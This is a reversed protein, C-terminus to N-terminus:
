MYSLIHSTEKEKKKQADCHHEAKKTTKSSSTKKGERRLGHQLFFFFFCNLLPMGKSRQEQRRTSPFDRGTLVAGRKREKSKAKQATGEKARAPCSDSAERAGRRPWATLGVRPRPPPPLPPPHCLVAAGSLVPRVFPLPTRSAKSLVRACQQQDANGSTLARLSRFLFLLFSALCAHLM